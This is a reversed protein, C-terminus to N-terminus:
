VPNCKKILTTLTDALSTRDTELSYNAYKCHLLNYVGNKIFKEFENKKRGLYFVPNGNYFYEYLIACDKLSHYRIAMNFKNNGNKKVDVKKIGIDNLIKVIQELLSQTGVFGFYKYKSCIWGDGDFYGRLYHGFLTSPLSEPITLDICSKGSCLGTKEMLSSALHKNTFACRVGWGHCKGHDDKYPATYTVKHHSRLEERILWILEEDMKQCDLQVAGKTINADAHLYGVVWAMNENWDQEFYSANITKSSVSRRERWNGAKIGMRSVKHLISTRSRNLVQSLVVPGDVAYRQQLIEIETRTWNRKM